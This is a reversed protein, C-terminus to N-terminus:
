RRRALQEKKRKVAMWAAEATSFSIPRNWGNPQIDAGDEIRHFAQWPKGTKINIPQFQAIHGGYEKQFFVSFEHTDTRLKEM